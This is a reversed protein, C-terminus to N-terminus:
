AYLIELREAPIEIVPFVTASYLSHLIYDYIMGGDFTYDDIFENRVESLEDNM